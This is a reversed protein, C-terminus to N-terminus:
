KESLQTALAEFPFQSADQDITDFQIFALAFAQQLSFYVLSDDSTLFSNSLSSTDSCNGVKLPM